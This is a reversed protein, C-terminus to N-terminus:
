RWWPRGAKFVQKEGEWSIVSAQLGLGCVPELGHLDRWNEIASNWSGEDQIMSEARFPDVEPSKKRAVVSPMYVSDGVLPADLAAFQVRIQHTRGTLLRVNCEYAHERSEWGCHAIRFQKEVSSSPWKVQRCGLVNLECNMWDSYDNNSVMRPAYRDSRMYHVHHGPAVPAAALATYEKRVKRERLLMHFHTSFAKTKAFVVCGETCTDIQHTLILPKKLKLARSVFTACMEELNDVTGGVSVGAPKDVVVFSDTEAIVRSLWDVEYVRPGRKPHVHVRLYTGSEIYESPSAIRFTKQAEKLTKGKLSLREKKRSARLKVQRNYLELQEPSAHPPPTPCELAYFVAGFSILYLHFRFNKVSSILLIGM